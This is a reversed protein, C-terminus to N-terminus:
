VCEFNLRAFEGYHQLAAVNYAIAAEIDTKFYGLHQNRGGVNITATFKQKRRRWCVGKFGKYPKRNQQNQSPTAVRLNRKRCDLKNGNIHDLNEKSWLMKMVFRHLLVNLNGNTLAAYGDPRFQWSGYEIVSPYDEDDILGFKGHTLEIKM